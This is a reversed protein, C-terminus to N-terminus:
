LRSCSQYILKIVSQLPQVSYGRATIGKQRPGILGKFVVSTLLCPKVIYDKCLNGSICGGM